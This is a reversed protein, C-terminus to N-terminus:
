DHDNLGRERRLARFDLIARAARAQDLGVRKTFFEMAIMDMEAGAAVDLITLAHKRAEEPTLQGTMSGWTIRVWPKGTQASVLSEVNIVTRASEVM